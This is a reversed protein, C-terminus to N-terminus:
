LGLARQVCWILGMAAVGACLTGTVLLGARPARRRLLLLLPFVVAIVALQVVEIGVNFVLLSWLLTWSWAAEIGLAGAFGLGHVLGFCFVVALRVWGARDLGLRGDGTPGLDGARIGRRVLRWLHWGAVVAISLAIVPEVIRAPVEVLGLAALLFTVSHALTFSTAALVIERPRRSGAILALLFLIHDIGGLLHEAGLRFFEWFRATWPQGVSFSPHAADLAASGGHGGVTSTVITRTGKVYGEADPFLASSITHDGAGEGREPCTWDLTLRAYPVGEERGMRFGGVPAPACAGGRDVTFRRTVYGVVAARHAELAAAQAGTDGADFAATGTRFLADDKGTDAASVVLLDYELRLETRLRGDDGDSVHAYVTSSFGHASSSPVLALFLPVAAALVVLLRRVPRSM